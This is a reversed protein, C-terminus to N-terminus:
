PAPACRERSAFSAGDADTAELGTFEQWRRVAMDVYAPNVEIAFCRRGEMEAAIITTGSGSFPEYVDGEHNAIPRRMAEVPKQTSHGTESRRHDIEWLTSQKRDGCWAATSGKRVAYWCPEHQGHYHGRSIVLQSKAWIIQTRLLLGARELSGGVVPAQKPGHWVYAVAGEFLAWAKSWDARDDNEVAGTARKGGLVKERWSADYEVGYPPDTVMLNPKAGDLVSAVDEAKTSDGCLLRHGGLSWIDGPRSVVVAQEDPVDDPDTHRKAAAKDAEALIADIDLDDKWDELGEYEALLEDLQPVDWTSLENLRNDAVMREVATAKDDGLVLVPVEELGLSRAAYLRGHGVIVEGNERAVIPAHWGLDRLSRAIGDVFHGSRPNDPAEHISGIPALIPELGPPVFASTRPKPAPAKRAM